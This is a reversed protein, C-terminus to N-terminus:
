PQCGAYATPDEVCAERWPQHGEDDSASDGEGLSEGGTPDPEPCDNAAAPSPAIALAVDAPMGSDLPCLSTGLDLVQYGDTAISLLVHATEMDGGLSYLAWGFGDLCKLYDIHGGGGAADSALVAALAEGRDCTARAPSSAPAATAAPETTTTTSSSSTAAPAQSTPVRTEESPGTGCAMLVGALTTATTAMVLTVRLGRM